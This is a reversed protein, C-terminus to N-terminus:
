AASGEGPAGAVAQEILYRLVPLTERHLESALLEQENSLQGEPGAEWGLIEAIDGAVDSNGYPRKCDVAPAGYECNEWRLEMRDLLKLHDATPAIAHPETTM